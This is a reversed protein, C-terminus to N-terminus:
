FDKAAALFKTLNMNRVMSINVICSLCVLRGRNSNVLRTRKGSGWAWYKEGLLDQALHIARRGGGWKKSGGRLPPVTTTPLLVEKKTGATRARKAGHSRGTDDARETSSPTVGSHLTVDV